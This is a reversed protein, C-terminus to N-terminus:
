TDIKKEAYYTMYMKNIKKRFLDNKERREASAIYSKVM